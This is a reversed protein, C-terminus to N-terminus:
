PQPGQNPRADPPGRTRHSRHQRSIQNVHRLVAGCHPCSVPATGFQPTEDRGHDGEPTEDAVSEDVPCGIAGIARRASELTKARSGNAFIGFHRIRHLGDPLVHLLFRRIFEDVPLTATGYRPKRQGPRKPKRYRFSVTEGDVAVIRSDSIAIRHTYRSLYTFVQEPGRFPRKAYAVWDRSRAAALAAHFEGPNHLYAVTGHFGLEGRGHARALEELFRRRFLSALVKVPALFTGSSTKWEGSDVDFGANPVVVHLHPHFLLKQDWTHLVATGGIRVGGHRPDKAITRLTEAATRFLVNFVVRRNCFAIAAIEVPLTFVVHFYPVPLIEAARAESWRNAALGQCSPCHRNRCSNYLPHERGCGDCRYMHGGLAATRCAEIAAMVKLRGADLRGATRERYAGGARRFIEAVGAHDRDM